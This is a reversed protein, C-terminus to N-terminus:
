LLMSMMRLALASALTIRMPKAVWATPSDRSATMTGVRAELSQAELTVLIVSSIAHRPCGKETAVAFPLFCPESMAHVRCTFLTLVRSGSFGVVVIQVGTPAGVENLIKTELGLAPTM